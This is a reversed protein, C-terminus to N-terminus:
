YEYDWHELGDALVGDWERDVQALSARDEPSMRAYSENNAKLMSERRYRAVALELIEQMTLGEQASLERLTERLQNSIRVTVSM